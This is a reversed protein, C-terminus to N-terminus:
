ENRSKGHKRPAIKRNPEKQTEPTTKEVLQWFHQPLSDDDYDDDSEVDNVDPARAAAAAPTWADGFRYIRAPPLGALVRLHNEREFRRREIEKQINGIRINERANCDRMLKKILDKVSDVSDEEISNFIKQQDRTLTVIATREERLPAAGGGGGANLSPRVVLWCIKYERTGDAKPKGFPYMDIPNMDIPNMSIFHLQSDDNDGNKANADPKRETAAASAAAAHGSFVMPSRSDAAAAADATAAKAAAQQAHYLAIKAKRETDPYLEYYEEDEELIKGTVPHKDDKKLKVSTLTKNTAPDTNHDKLWAVIDKREYAQKTDKSHFTFVPDTMIELGFHHDTIEEPDVSAQAATAAATPTAAAAAAAAPIPTVAAAPTPSAASAAAAAAAPKAVLSKDGLNKLLKINNPYDRLFQQYSDRTAVVFPHDESLHQRDNIAAVEAASLGGGYVSLSNIPKIAEDEYRHLRYESYEEGENDSVVNRAEGKKPPKPDAGGGGANQPAAAAAAEPAVFSYVCGDLSHDVFNIHPMSPAQEAAAAAAAPRADSHRIRNVNDQLERRQAPTINPTALAATAAVHANHAAALAAIHADAHGAHAAAAAPKAKAAAIGDDAGGGGGGGGGGGEGVYRLAADALRDRMANRDAATMRPNYEYASELICNILEPYNQEFAGELLKDRIDKKVDEERKM